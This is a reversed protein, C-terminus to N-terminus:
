LPILNQKNLTYSEACLFRCLRQIRRNRFIICFDDWFGQERRQSRSLRTNGSIEPCSTFIEYGIIVSCPLLSLANPWSYGAPLIHNLNKEQGHKNFVRRNNCFKNTASLILIIQRRYFLRQHKYKLLYALCSLLLFVRPRLRWSTKISSPPLRGSTFKTHRHFDPGSFYFLGTLSYSSKSM